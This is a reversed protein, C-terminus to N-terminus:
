ASAATGPPEETVSLAFRPSRRAERREDRTSPAKGYETMAKRLEKDEINLYGQTQKIDHELGVM